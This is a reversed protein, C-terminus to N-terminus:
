EGKVMRNGASAETFFSRRTPPIEDSKRRINKTRIRLFPLM